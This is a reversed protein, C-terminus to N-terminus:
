STAYNVPRSGFITALCLRRHCTAAVMWFQSLVVCIICLGSFETSSIRRSKLAWVTRREIGDLIISVDQRCENSGVVNQSASDPLVIERFLGFLLSSHLLQSSQSADLVEADEASKEFADGLVTVFFITWIVLSVSRLSKLM